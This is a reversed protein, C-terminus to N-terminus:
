KREDTLALANTASTDDAAVTTSYLERSFRDATRKLPQAFVFLALLAIACINVLAAGGLSPRLAPQGDDRLAIAVVVRMYYYLSILTNLVAVIILTWGLVSLSSSAPGAHASTLKGLAILIWWKGIFGALPPIGVLSVLCIIMPIALAPARRMLGNFAEIRDSGCDWSVLATVGFAGLNMFLYIIVYVMLATMGAEYGQVSPHLFVALAMLMYGAHAISSYALLRKVSEQRYAAFNGVTCTVCAVIGITWALPAVMSMEVPVPVARCFVLVLRGLLVLGAAKSAVSLWTTVEIKAGEFADPCWFHFPVASIKFAIGAFFCFLAIGLLLRNEGTALQQVTYAAVDSVSLSGVLGYLLSAGYLMIAMCVAGFVMYKLSAEAGLRNRKDFGVIAYSPLSAAEIAVVIMLLHQTSVMLMMGLASGLLLIFFEPANRETRSSGIWWLWMVGLLFVLLIIQFGVSLNDAVLIGASLQTSLGSIGGGSVAGMVRLTCILTVLVGLLSITAITKAGRGLVMPFAVVALMTCTLAIMPSFAFLHESVNIGAWETTQALLSM